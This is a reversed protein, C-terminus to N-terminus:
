SFLEAACLGTLAVCTLIEAWLWRSDDFESQVHPSM